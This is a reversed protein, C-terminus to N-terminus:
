DKTKKNINRRGGRCVVVAMEKDLVCDKRGGVLAGLHEVGARGARSEKRVAGLERDEMGGFAKIALIQGVLQLNQAAEVAKVKDDATKEVVITGVPRHSRGEAGERDARLQGHRDRRM